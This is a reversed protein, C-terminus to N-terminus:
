SPTEAEADEVAAAYKVWATQKTVGLARGIESWSRGQRRAIAVLGGMRDEMQRLWMAGAWILLLPDALGEREIEALDEPLELHVVWKGSKFEPAPDIGLVTRIGQLERAWTPVGRLRQRLEDDKDTM